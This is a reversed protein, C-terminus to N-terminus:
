PVELTGDSDEFWIIQMNRLKKIFVAIGNKANASGIVSYFGERCFQLNDIIFGATSDETVVARFAALIHAAM